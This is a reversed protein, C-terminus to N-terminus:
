VAPPTKIYPMGSNLSGFFITCDSTSYRFRMPTSITRLATTPFSSVSSSSSAFPYPATNTPVPAPSGFKMFM